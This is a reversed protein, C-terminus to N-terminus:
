INGYKGATLDWINSISRSEESLHKIVLFGSWPSKNVWVKASEARIHHENFYVLMHKDINERVNKNCWYRKVCIIMAFKKSHGTFCLPILM